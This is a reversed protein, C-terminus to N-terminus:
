KYLTGLGRFDAPQPSTYGNSIVNDYSNDMVTAYSPNAVDKLGLSHGVEHLAVYKWSTSSASLKSTNLQVYSLAFTYTYAPDYNGDADYNYVHGAWGTDGYAGAFVRIQNSSKTASATSISVGSTSWDNGWSNIASSINNKMTSTVTGTYYVSISSSSFKGGYTPTSVAYTAAPECISDDLKDLMSSYTDTEALLAEETSVCGMGGSLVRYYEGYDPDNVHKLFLVYQQDPEMIPADDFEPTFLDDCVGGTQVVQLEEDLITGSYIHTIGITSRTFVLNCRVEPEQHVVTGIVVADAMEAMEEFSAFSETWLAHAGYAIGKPADTAFASTSFAMVFAVILAIVKKM